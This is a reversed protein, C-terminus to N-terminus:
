RQPICMINAQQKYLEEQLKNEHKIIEELSKKLCHEREKEEEDRKKNEKKVDTRIEESNMKEKEHQKIRVEGDKWEM